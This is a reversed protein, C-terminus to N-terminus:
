DVHTEPANYHRFCDDQVFEVQYVHYDPDIERLTQYRDAMENREEWTLICFMVRKTPFVGRRYETVEWYYVDDKMEVVVAPNATESPAPPTGGDAEEM